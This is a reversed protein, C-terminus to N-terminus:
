VRTSCVHYMYGALVCTYIGFGVLGGFVFECDILQRKQKKISRSSYVTTNSDEIFSSPRSEKERERGNERGFCSPTRVCVHVTAPSDIM